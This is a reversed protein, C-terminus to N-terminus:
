VTLRSSARRRMKSQGENSPGLLGNLVQARDPEEDFAVRRAITPHHGLPQEVGRLLDSEEWPGTADYGIEPLFGDSLQNHSLVADDVSDLLLGRHDKGHKPRRAEERELPYSVLPAESLCRVGASEDLPPTRGM